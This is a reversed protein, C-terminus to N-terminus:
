GSDQLRHEMTGSNAIMHADNSIVKFKWLIDQIQDKTIDSKQIM